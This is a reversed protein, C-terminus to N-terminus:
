SLAVVAGRDSLRRPGRVSRVQSRLEGLRSQQSGASSNSMSSAISGSRSVRLYSPISPEPTATNSRSQLPSPRASTAMSSTAPSPPASRSALPSVPPSDPPVYQIKAAPELTKQRFRAIHENFRDERDPKRGIGFRKWAALASISTGIWNIYKGEPNGLLQEAAGYIGVLAGTASIYTANLAPGSKMAPAPSRIGLMAVGFLAVNLMITLMPGVKEEWRGSPDVRSVPDGSCYAYANLGGRDFPSWRDPSNFRQLVPNYARYGNGPLYCGWAELLQGNFALGASGPASPDIRNAPLTPM